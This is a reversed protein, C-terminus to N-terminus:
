RPQSANVNAPQRASNSCCGQSRVSPTQGVHLVRRDLAILDGKAQASKELAEILSLLRQQQADLATLRRQLENNCKKRHLVESATADGM